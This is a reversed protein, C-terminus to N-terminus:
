RRFAAPPLHHPWHRDRVLVPEVGARRLVDRQGKTFPFISGLHTLHRALPVSVVQAFFEVPLNVSLAERTRRGMGPPWRFTLTRLCPAAPAEALLALLLEATFPRRLALTVHNRGPALSLAWRLAERGPVEFHTTDIWPLMEDLGDPAHRRDLAVSLLGRHWVGGGHRWLPGLWGGGFRSLLEDVREGARAREPEDPSSGPTLACQLRLFEARYADGAEDLWDALVLRPTDDRPRERAAELLALVRPHWLQGSM